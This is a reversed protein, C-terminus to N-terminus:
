PPTPTQRREKQASNQCYGDERPLENRGVNPVKPVDRALQFYRRIM